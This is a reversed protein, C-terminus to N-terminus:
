WRLGNSGLFQQVWAESDEQELIGGPGFCSSYNTRLVKKINDPADAPVVAWSWYEVKGPGLPHSVEFPTNSWLFPLNPYIGCTLGKMRARLDGVREAALAQIERLYEQVEDGGLLGGMGEMGWAMEDPPSDAPMLRFTAGHGPRTVASFGLEEILDQMERPIIAGHLFAGHNVDGLQNEVPLKWNTNLTCRHPAGMFEIGGPFREFLADLYFRMDGPYDELSKIDENLLQGVRLRM